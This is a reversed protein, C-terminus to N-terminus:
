LASNLCRIACRVEIENEGHQIVIKGPHKSAPVGGFSPKGRQMAFSIKLTAANEVCYDYAEKLLSVRGLDLSSVEAELFGSIRMAMFRFIAVSNMSTSIM